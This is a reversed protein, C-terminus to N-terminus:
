LMYDAIEPHQAVLHHLQMDVTHDPLMLEIGVPKFNRLTKKHAKPSIMM